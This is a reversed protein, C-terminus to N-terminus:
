EACTEVDEIPSTAGERFVRQLGHTSDRYGATNREKELMENRREPVATTMNCSLETFIQQFEM